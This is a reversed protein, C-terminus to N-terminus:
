FGEDPEPTEPTLWLTLISAPDIQDRCRLYTEGEIVLGPINPLSEIPNGILNIRRLRPLKSLGAPITKLGNGNLWLEELHDLTLVGEPLEQINQGRLDLVTAQSKRAQEVSGARISGSM